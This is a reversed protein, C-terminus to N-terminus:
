RPTFHREPSDSTAGPFRERVQGRVEAHLSDFLEAPYGTRAVLWDRAEDYTGFTTQQYEDNAPSLWRIATMVGRALLSRTVLAQHGRQVMKAAEGIRRRQAANPPHESEVIVITTAFAGKRTNVATALQDILGLIQLMDAESLPDEVHLSFTILREADYATALM